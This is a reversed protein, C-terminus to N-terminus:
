GPHDVCGELLNPPGLPILACAEITLAHFANASLGRAM